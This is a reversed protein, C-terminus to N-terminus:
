LEKQFEQDILYVLCAMAASGMQMERLNVQEFTDNASHHYDFYRQSDTILSALMINKYKSRLPGIDVGGGGRILEIGYPKFYKGYALLQKFRGEPGSLGLARPVLVGRDSEIAAVHIEQNAIAQEAYMIGGRQATEEDMFMVARITFAPKINLKKFLRLVEISQMCGGGDDHAGESNDWADLHGGITIIREPYKSGKIEGIVNHSKVEPFSRCDTKFFLKLKPDKKLWSSLLEAGLTSVAIAPIKKIRSNYQLIGTHPLDDLALTLSRTITGIALYRAAEAAGLTRQFAAEGYAAFTNIKTPDLAKNFFVIKNAIKKVGLKKLEAFSKVEIVEGLVGEKGTGVSGGLACVSLKRFGLSGSTISAYEATGRKWNKVQVEQLYVRDLNMNQMIQRTFEVAGAAQPSGCIRGPFNKCLYRLNEYAINSSLAEKFFKKFIRTKEPRPFIYLSTLILLFFFLVKLAKKLLFKEKM